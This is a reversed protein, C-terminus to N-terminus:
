AAESKASSPLYPQADNIRKMELAFAIGIAAVTEQTLPTKLERRVRLLSELADFASETEAIAAQQEKTM